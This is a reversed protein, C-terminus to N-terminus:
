QWWCNDTLTPQLLTDIHYLIYITYNLRTTLTHEVINNSVNKSDFISCLTPRLIAQYIISGDDTITEYTSHFKDHAHCHLM